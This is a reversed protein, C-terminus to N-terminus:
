ITEERNFTPVWSFILERILKHDAKIFESRLSEDLERSLLLEFQNNLMEPSDALNLFEVGAGISKSLEISGSSPTAWVPIGNAISERMARGYSETPACSVLVGVLNWGVQMYAPDLEGLFTIRNSPLHQQLDKEFKRRLKGSGVIVISFIPNVKALKATLELFTNLGRDQEIRGVLGLSKPRAARSKTFIGDNLYFSPVPIVRINRRDVNYRKSLQAAQIESTARVESAIRLTAFTLLSRLRNRWNQSIWLQNGIDGHAQVQIRLKTGILKSFLVSAFLSEWPDGAVLLRTRYMEKFEYIFFMRIRRRFLLSKPVKITYLNEISDILFDKQSHFTIVGLRVTGNSLKNLEEAYVLHRNLTSPNGLILNRPDVILVLEVM